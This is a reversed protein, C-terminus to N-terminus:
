AAKDQKLAQLTPSTEDWQLLFDVCYELVSEAMALPCIQELMDVYMM